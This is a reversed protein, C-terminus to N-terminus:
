PPMETRVARHDQAQRLHQFPLRGALRARQQRCKRYHQVIFGQMAFPDGGVDIHAEGRFTPSLQHTAGVVLAGRGVPAVQFQAHERM